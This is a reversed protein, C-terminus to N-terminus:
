RSKIEDYEALVSWSYGLRHYMQINRYGCSELLHYLEEKRYYRALKPNLQDYIVMKRSDSDLRLFYNRMYQFLPLSPHRCLKGYLLAPITLFRALRDLIRHPLRSTIRRLPKVATLYLRNNEEGYVWLLLKGAPSLARGMSKLAKVPDPIFQLVGICCMLDFSEPPVQDATAQLYRVNPCDTTNRKLVEFAASPEIALIDSAGLECFMRTYRGTGAGIDAIRKGRIWEPKLLPGMVSILAEISGYYGTNNQFNTWQTGFDEITNM